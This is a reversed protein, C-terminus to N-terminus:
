FPNHPKNNELQKIVSLALFIFLLSAMILFFGSFIFLITLEYQNNKNSIPYLSVMTESDNTFCTITTNTSFRNTPKHFPNFIERTVFTTSELNILEQCKSTRPFLLIPFEITHNDVQRCCQNHSFILQEHDLKYQYIFSLAGSMSLLVVIIIVGMITRAIFINRNEDSTPVLYRTDLKSQRTFSTHHYYLESRTFHSVHQMGLQPQGNSCAKENNNAAMHSETESGEM